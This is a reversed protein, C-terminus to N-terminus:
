GRYSGLYGAGEWVLFARELKMGWVGVGFGLM